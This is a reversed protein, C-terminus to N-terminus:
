SGDPSSRGVQRSQLRAAKQAMEETQRTLDELVPTLETNLRNLSTILAKLHALLRWAAFALAIVVGLVMLLFVITLWTPM